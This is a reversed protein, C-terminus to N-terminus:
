VVRVQSLLASFVKESTQLVDNASTRATQQLFDRHETTQPKTRQHLYPDLSFNDNRFKYIQRDNIRFTPTINCFYISLYGTGWSDTRRQGRPSPPHLTSSKPPSWMPKLLLPPADTLKSGIFPLPPWVSGPHPPPPSWTLEITVCGINELSKEGEGGESLHHGTRKIKRVQFTWFLLLFIPELFFFVRWSFYRKTLLRKGTFYKISLPYYNETSHKARSNEVQPGLRCAHAIVALSYWRTNEQM